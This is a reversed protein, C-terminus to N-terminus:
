PGGHWMDGDLAHRDLEREIVDAGAGQLLAQKRLRPQPLVLAVADDDRRQPLEIEADFGALPHRQDAM